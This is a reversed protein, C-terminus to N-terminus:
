GDTYRFNHRPSDESLGEVEALLRALEDENLLAGQCQEVATALGAITPAEFLARLPLEVQFRNRVRSLVQTALLSHGGVAFFDDHVGVQVIGLVETWIGALREETPTRPAVFAEELTPRETGPAPLAQRDVKGNPTLPLAELLVFASPVMSEPLKQKLFRHLEHVTPAQERRPVIYAVLRTDGPVDDRAILVAQQVAPHQALVAEIEGLEIRFGRLKVQHDLRRLFEISGDPAYRALDGTKYLISGLEDSFPNPIFREATLDPRNLYGRALDAGGVHLEGPIGIPVPQLHRDLVYVQTNAIPRGIPVTRRHSERQCTWSTVDITAETPGYLNHLSAAPLCPFFRETLDVDLAEGGCFVHRLSTCTKLGNGRLLMQLLLPVLQLTTIQQEAILRVLDGGDLHSGPQALILQAGALLPAYFEWVSADFSFPTRQLVRDAESLSFDQQMWGMHNGLARHPIMVGKPQGTSGSTYIVYAPNEPTVRSAPNGTPERAIVEWDTGLCIVQATHNPLRALLRQQTLLVSAQADAMMFALRERPYTPDLPVYAAGAKLTGLLGVVMALSRELCIAVLAEPGIRLKQLHHALQNARANLERYTLQQDGFVVATADPTHAVQAEFLQPLCRHKPYETTTRNWEILLQRREAATLLPLDSLRQMPDAVIGALLTQFHGGMRTITAPDFLDTNYEWSAVLGSAEEVLSLTLDFKATGSGLTLPTLTLSPLYLAQRPANQLSFMVQFLPSHSLRREPQLEEVLQEFPLDQHAYAGLAVERVRRLLERFTPNGSLDTRLVLTNVFFGILGEIEARKRNAIPSGVLLDDQGTYRQLLTQFTALLTMFLTVGERQSLARLADTLPKPLLLSQRTGRYTQAPPRPRDTPLELVSPSGGLQRQWYSLQQQLVDGQLWQRQWVAYDAYQIPLEPLPSPNGASFAKYLATLEQILVGMSWGDSVIHHMNLLLVYEEEALQVLTARFLPGHALDFPSRVDETALRMAQDEKAGDPLGRLDVVPLTLPRHPAVVQLPQGDVAAFTTRLAEHRRVIANLSQALLPVNLPGSLRYAAPISYAPSEPEFEALFWLRQQAFSTPFVLVEEQGSGDTAGLASRKIDYPERAVPAITATQLEVGNDQATEIALALDAITPTEFLRRLPVEVQFAAQLRTIVQTALLSHGGLEFFNDHIGVRELGLIDAWISALVEEVPTRPAVFADALTPRTQDPAPLGRRDVKGNPSLPLSELLVFASPIMYHPLEAQLFAHLDSTSPGPPQPAVVYAILRTDGPGEERALVVSERVAPHQSLVAEVEGLEIRFGRIKVQHDLRGLFELQSDPRYRALDGTQYLRAGPEESFPHPLFREATLDPRNLYGRALGVGGVYLEGPVGIPVPQLHRDLLYVQTNAIPRGITPPEHTGKQVLTFTSYTTDESPGYLNFIQQITPQQYLQQVLALPLSEGALNVTQVSPPIGGVRLLELMASPVTNLLTVGQAASQNALQLVNEALIMTGGWSLPVFLEFVSLDFCISTSALVGALQASSFIAKAWALLTVTSQHAIAVGKPRGTSGSTYIVYALNDATVGSVPTEEREQAIAPWDRDLCVIAAEHAPLSAVLREQTVLVPLQADAVMFALREQPYSPDLPVYAGGAKLIGLLGVVMPLSREMCIGVLVEPGVGLARLYHAVQNARQNLARYTLQQDDCVVAITDPTHAVQAEFLAHICVDRPYETRTANRAVLLQHQESAALLPLTAISQDPHAIVGELLTYYHRVLRQMTVADFLDTSYSLSGQLGTPADAIALLLDFPQSDTERPLLSVALGPWAGADEPESWYNFLVQIVPHSSLTREPQLEEVLREFPLDQHADAACVVQRVRALLEHFSPHGGLDTHLVLTNVFCGILGEVELRHRNAIPTGVVLHDQATYRYLLAKFAALLTMFLTAGQRNSFTKLATTLPKPLSFTVRGGHYTPVAPRPRDTPLALVPPAGALQAKWYALQAELVEGQLWERQWVAFDAYQIPLDPLPSPEGRSFATYLASLERLLIGTSWRDSAIHHMILLLLHEQAGLRLLTARLMADRSLDFPRQTADKLLRATEADREAVSWASLDILALEAPRDAAIRQMPHGDVAAYTTRLVEHRAVIAALSRQLAPVDLGGVLRLAKPVHYFPSLPELQNLFWLRQQAFSLPCPSFTSRQPIRETGRAANQQMLWLELQARQEATLEALLQRLDSM